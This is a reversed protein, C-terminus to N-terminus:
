VFLIMFVLSVFLEIKHYIDYWTEEHPLNEPKILGFHFKKVKLPFGVNRMLVVGDGTHLM